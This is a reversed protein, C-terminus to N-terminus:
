NIQIQIPKFNEKKFVVVKLVGNKLEADIKDGNAGEVDFSRSFSGETREYKTKGFSKKNEKKRSWNITLVDNKLSINIEEKKVGPVELEVSYKENDEEFDSRGNLIKDFESDFKFLGASK